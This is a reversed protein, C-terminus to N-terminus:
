PRIGIARQCCRCFEDSPLKVWRKRAQLFAASNSNEGSKPNQCHESTQGPGAFRRIM